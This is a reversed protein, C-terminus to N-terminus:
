ACLIPLVNKKTIFDTKVKETQQKEVITLEINTEHTPEEVCDHEKTKNGPPINPSSAKTEEASAITSLANEEHSM